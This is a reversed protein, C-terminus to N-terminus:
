KGSHTRIPLMSRSLRGNFAQISVLLSRYHCITESRCSSQFDEHRSNPEFNWFAVEDCIAAVCTSGRVGRFDSTAVKITIRNNLEIEDTRWATVMQALAPVNELIGKVYARRIGTERWSRSWASRPALYTKSIM